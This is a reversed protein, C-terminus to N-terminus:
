DASQRTTIGTSDERLMSIIKEASKLDSLVSQLQQSAEREDVTFYYKLV